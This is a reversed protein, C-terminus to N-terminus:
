SNDNIINIEDHKINTSIKKEQNTSSFHLSPPMKYVQIGDFVTTRSTLQQTSFYPHNLEKINMVSNLANIFLNNFFLIEKGQLFKQKEVCAGM